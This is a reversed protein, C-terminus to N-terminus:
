PHLCVLLCTWYLVMSTVVFSLQSTCSFDKNNLIVLKLPFSSIVKFEEQLVFRIKKM